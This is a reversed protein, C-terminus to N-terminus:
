LLDTIVICKKAAKAMVVPCDRIESQGQNFQEYAQRKNEGVFLVFALESKQVLKPSASVREPPPKPSDSLGLYLEEDSLLAPHQPFLSAIHADPGVGLVTCHLTGGHEALKKSYERVGKDKQAEQVVFPHLQNEALVGTHVLESFLHERLLKFNSDPSDLPVMREDVMFFHVNRFLEKLQDKDHKAVAKLFGVVSGGGCFGITMPKQNRSKLWLMLEAAATDFIKDLPGSITHINMPASDVM